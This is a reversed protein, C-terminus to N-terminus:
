KLRTSKVVSTRKTKGMNKDKKLQNKEIKYEHLLKDMFPIYSLVSSHSTSIEAFYIFTFMHSVSWKSIFQPMKASNVM